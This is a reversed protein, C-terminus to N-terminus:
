RPFTGCGLLASAEVSNDLDRRVLTPSRVSVSALWQYVKDAFTWQAFLVYAGLPVDPFTYHAAAGTGATDLPGELQISEFLDHIVDGKASELSKGLPLLRASLKGYLEFENRASARAMSDRLALYYGMPIKTKLDYMQCVGALNLRLTPTDRLLFVTVGPARKADGSQMVLYVDGEVAAAKPAMGRQGFLPGAWLMVVGIIRSPNM